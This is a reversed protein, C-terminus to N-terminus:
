ELYEGRTVHGNGLSQKGAGLQQFGRIRSWTKGEKLTEARSKLLHSSPDGGKGRFRSEWVHERRKSITAFSVGM